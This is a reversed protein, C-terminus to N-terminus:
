PPVSNTPLQLAWRTPASHLTIENQEALMRRVAEGIIPQDDIL